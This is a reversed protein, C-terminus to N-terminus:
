PLRHASVPRAAKVMGAAAQAPSGVADPVSTCRVSFVLCPVHTVGLVYLCALRHCGDFRFYRFGFYSQLGPASALDAVWVRNNTRYGGAGITEFLAIFRERKREAVERPFRLLLYETWYATDDLNGGSRYARLFAVHWRLAEARNKAFCEDAGLVRWKMSALRIEPTQVPPGTRTWGDAQPGGERWDSLNRQFEAQAGQVALWPRVFEKLRRTVGQM